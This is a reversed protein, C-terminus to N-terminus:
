SVKYGKAQLRLHQITRPTGTRVFDFTSDLFVSLAVLAFCTSVKECHGMFRVRRCQSLATHRQIQVQLSQAKPGNAEEQPKTMHGDILPDFGEPVRRGLDLSRRAWM